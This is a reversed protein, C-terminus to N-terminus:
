GARGSMAHPNLAAAMCGKRYQTPSLGTVGKFVRNFHTLSQFGVDFAIESIRAAGDVLLKKAAEVRATAVYQTFAMETSEKFKTSFYSTSLSACRAAAELELPKSLNEHIFAIARRIGPCTGHNRHLALQSAVMSLHSAFIELLRMCSEFRRRTTTRTSFYARKLRAQDFPHGAQKLRGTIAAFRAETPRTIAVEGAILLGITNVGIRIPVCSECLGAFCTFHHAQSGGFAALKRWIRFCSECDSDHRHLQGCFANRHHRAGGHMLEGDASALHLSLSTSDEFASEYSRFLKSRFIDELIRARQDASTLCPESAHM